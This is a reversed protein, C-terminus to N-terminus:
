GLAICNNTSPLNFISPLFTLIDYYIIDKIKLRGRRFRELDDRSLYIKKGGRKLDILEIGEFDEFSYRHFVTAALDLISSYMLELDEKSIDFPAISLKFQLINDNLIGESSELVFSERLHKDEQFLMKIRRAIQQNLFWDLTLDKKPLGDPGIYGIDKYQDFTTKLDRQRIETGSYFYKSVIEKLVNPFMAIDVLMLYENSFGPPFIAKYAEFRPIAQYYERTKLYFLAEQQSIEKYPLEEIDIKQTGKVGIAYVPYFASQINHVLPSGSNLAQILEHIKSEGATVPNFRFDRLIRKHYEGRSIDLLRVRVVDYIFGTLTFEAGINKTDRATLTYFKLPRDTSMTVRHISLAVDEIKDGASQDLKLSDDVLGEIPISVGLTSGIIKADVDLGYEEKCLNKVSEIVKEKSYTPKKSCSSCSALLIIILLYRLSKSPQIKM